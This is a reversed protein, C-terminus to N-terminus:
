VEAGVIVKDPPPVPALKLADSKAGLNTLALVLRFVMSPVVSVSAPLVLTPPM